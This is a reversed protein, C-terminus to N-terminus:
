RIIKYGTTEKQMIIKSKNTQKTLVELKKYKPLWNVRKESGIFILYEFINDGKIGNPFITKYKLNLQSKILDNNNNNEQGNFDANPFIKTIMNYDEDGYPLWQFITMYMKKSPNIEIELTDGSSFSKKNINVDFFFNPDNNQKIPLVNAKIKVECFRVETGLVKGDPNRSVEEWDVIEGNLEFLSLQNRECEYEGETESCNTVVESSVKLGLSETLAKKQAKTTAISCSKNVSVDGLHKQKETVEIWEAQAINFFLLIIVLIKKM